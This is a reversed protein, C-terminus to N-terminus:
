PHSSNLRTSKRDLISNLFAVCTRRFNLYSDKSVPDIVEVLMEFIM